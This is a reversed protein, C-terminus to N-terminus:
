RLCCGIAALTGAGGIADRREAAAERHGARRIVAADIHRDVAVVMEGAGDVRAAVRETALLGVRAVVPIRAVTRLSAELEAGVVQAQAAYREVAVVAVCTRHVLAPRAAARAVREVAVVVIGPGDVSAVARGAAGVHRDRIAARGVCGAPAVPANLTGCTDTTGAPTTHRDLAVVSVGTRGVGAIAILSAGVRRDGAVVPVGARAVGAVRRDAARVHGHDSAAVVIRLVLAIRADDSSRARAAGADPAGRHATVIAVRARGVPANRVDAAGGIRHGPGCGRAADAFSCRRRRATANGDRTGYPRRKRPRAREDPPCGPRARRRFGFPLQGAPRRVVERLPRLDRSARTRLALEFCRAGARERHQEVIPVAAGEDEAVRFSCCRSLSRGSRDWKQRFPPSPAPSSCHETTV